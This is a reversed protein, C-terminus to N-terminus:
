RAPAAAARSEATETVYRAVQDVPIGAATARAVLPDLDDTVFLSLLRGDEALAEGVGQAGEVLFRRAEERLARKKLRVAAVVKANKASTLM